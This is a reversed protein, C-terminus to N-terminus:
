GVHNFCNKTLSLLRTIIRRYLDSLSLTAAAVYNYDKDCVNELGIGGISFAQSIIPRPLVGCLTVAPVVYINQSLLENATVVAVGVTKVSAAVHDM